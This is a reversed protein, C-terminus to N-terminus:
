YINAEEKQLSLIQMRNVATFPARVWRDEGETRIQVDTLPIFKVGTHIVEGVGQGNPCHMHGLLRHRPMKIVVQIPIKQVFPYGNCGVRAGIGRASNGEATEVLLIAMKNIYTSQQREQTGDVHEITADRVELFRNFSTHKKESTENLFDTIRLNIPLEVSGRLVDTEVYFKLPIWSAYMNNKM